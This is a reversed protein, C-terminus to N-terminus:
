QRYIEECNWMTFDPLKAPKFNGLDPKAAVLLNRTVLFIYPQQEAMIQQVKGFLNKREQTNVTMAQQQMLQDIEKEWTTAPQKQQPHWWHSGGSSLLINMEANPDVDGSSTALLAADYTFSQNIQELVVKTDLTGINMKIGLKALDEQMMASMKQRLANGANTLLTFEVPHSQADVLTKDNDQWRFGAESLLKRAETLNYAFQKIDPQFWLKDGSSIFSYQPAARGAFAVKVMADRDIAHSIAQRFKQQAFWSRKIPDVFPKGTQANKGDNLNFWFVERILSAGLDHIKIKGQQETESLVKLDDASVPSFIDTEGNQFKLLQTNRDPELTFVIEDLYPLAKGSEDKKWYHENRTLVVRQGSVYEKLKFAGLGVIKEPATALNWVESEKGEAAVFKGAQYAETLQHAPLIPVGDFLREVAAHAQPFTVRVSNEDVKEVKVGKGDVQFSDTFASAIKPDNILQFTFLVDNVTLPKGDSFQVDRRLTFAISKGDPSVQWNQALEPEVQQSQRNIRILGAMLCNTITNTQDDFSFLRNFTKPGASKSVVLRGGFKSTRAPASQKQCAFAFLLLGVFLAVSFKRQM